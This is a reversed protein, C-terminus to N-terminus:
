ESEKERELARACVSTMAAHKLRRKFRMCLVNYYLVCKTHTHTNIIIITNTVVVAVLCYDRAAVATSRPPAADSARRPPVFMQAKRSFHSAHACRAATQYGRTRTRAAITQHKTMVPSSLACRYRAALSGVGPGRSNIEFRVVLAEGLAAAPLCFMKRVNMRNRTM